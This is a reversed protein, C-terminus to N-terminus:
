EYMPRINEVLCVTDKHRVNGHLPIGDNSRDKFRVTARKGIMNNINTHWERKQELTGTPRAKFIAENIDNRLIFVFTEPEDTQMASGRIEFEADEFQKIKLLCSDRFGHQYIGNPNRAIAGEYGEALWFDHLRVVDEENNVYRGIVNVIKPNIFLDTYQHKRDEREKNHENPLNINIVDYIYYDLFDQKGGFLTKVEDETRIAGSILQLPVGHKYIEGDLVINPHSIFFSTLAETLHPVVYYEGGRSMHTIKGNFLFTKCRVGNLKPQLILPYKVRDKFDKWKEALMPLLNWDPNSNYKIGLKQYTSLIDLPIPVGPMLFKFREQIQQYTKYGEMSKERFLANAQFETQQQTNRGQSGNLVHRVKKILKGGSLGTETTISNDTFEITFIRLKGKKDLCYQDALKM